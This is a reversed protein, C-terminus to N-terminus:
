LSCCFLAAAYCGISAFALLAMILSSINENYDLFSAGNFAAGIVFLGGLSSWAGVARDGSRIAHLALLAMVVVLALGFMVHAGLAFPGHVIAWSVSDLSGRLYTGPHAGPHRSPVTVYLSVSMGIGAQVLVLVIAGLLLRQLKAGLRARARRLSGDSRGAAAPTPSGAGSHEIARALQLDEDPASSTQAARPRTM